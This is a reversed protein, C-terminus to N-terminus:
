TFEIFNFRDLDMRVLIDATDNGARGIHSFSWTIGLGFCSLM